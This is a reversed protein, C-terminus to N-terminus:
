SVGGEDSFCTKRRGYRGMRLVGAGTLIKIHYSALQASIGLGEAIAKQSLGPNERVFEVISRQTETLYHKKEPVKMGCPFFRRRSGDRRSKVYRERELVSLHYALAGNNLRLSKKLKTYHIGPDGRITRYLRGRVSHDLVKERKLRTYLPVLGLQLIRYRSSELASVGIALLSLSFLAAAATVPMRGGNGPSASTSSVKVIAAMSNDDTEVEPLGNEYRCRFMISHIGASANWWPAYVTNEGPSAIVSRRLIIEDDLLIVCEVPLPANANNFFVAAITIDDGERPGAPSFELSGAALHPLTHVTLSFNMFNNTEATEFVNNESDVFVRADHQGANMSASLRIHYTDGVAAVYVSDEPEINRDLYLSIMFGDVSIHGSSEVTVELTVTTNELIIEPVYLDTPWLDPAELSNVYKVALNNTEDAETVEDDYDLRAMIKYEGEEVSLWRFSFTHTEMPGIYASGTRIYLVKVSAGAGPNGPGGDTGREGTSTIETGPVVITLELTCTEGLNGTNHVDVLIETFDSIGGTGGGPIDGEPLRDMEGSGPKEDRENGENGENGIRLRIDSPSVSFDPKSSTQRYSVSRESGDDMDERSSGEEPTLLHLNDNSDSSLSVPCSGVRGPFIVQEIMSLDGPELTTMQLTRNDGTGCDVVAADLVGDHWILSSVLATDPSDILGPSPGTASGDMSSYSGVAPRFNSDNFATWGLYFRYDDDNDDSEDPSVNPLSANVSPPTIPTDQVDTLVADSSASGNRAASSPHLKTYFIRSHGSGIEGGDIRDEAAWVVHVYGDRTFLAPSPPLLLGTVGQGPMSAPLSVNQELECTIPTDDITRIDADTVDSKGSAMAPLLESFFLRVIHADQRSPEDGDSVTGGERGDQGDGSDSGDGGERGGDGDDDDTGGASRVDVWVLSIYDDPDVGVAPQLARSANQVIAIDKLIFKGEPTLSTYVITSGADDQWFVHVNDLSDLVVAPLANDMVQADGIVLPGWLPNMNNDYKAAYIERIRMEGDELSDESHLGQEWITIVNDASDIQVSVAGVAEEGRQLSIPDSWTDEGPETTDGSSGNVALLGILLLALLVFLQCFLTSSGAAMAIV